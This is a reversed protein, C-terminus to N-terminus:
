AGLRTRCRLLFDEVAARTETSPVDPLRSEEYAANLAPELSKIQALYLADDTLFMDEAGVKMAVLENVGSLDFSENLRVINADIEGSRLVHIRTM